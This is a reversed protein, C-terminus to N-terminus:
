IGQQKTEINFSTQNTTPYSEQKSITWHYCKGYVQESNRGYDLGYPRVLLFRTRQVNLMNFWAQMVAGYERLKYINDNNSNCGFLNLLSIVEIGSSNWTLISDKCRGKELSLETEYQILTQCHMPIQMTYELVVFDTRSSFETRCNTSNVFIGVRNIQIIFPFCPFFM